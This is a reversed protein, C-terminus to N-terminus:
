KHLEKYHDTITMFHHHHNQTISNLARWVESFTEISLDQPEAAWLNKNEQKDPTDEIVTAIIRPYNKRSYLCSMLAM